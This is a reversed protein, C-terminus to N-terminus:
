RAAPEALLLAYQEDVARSYNELRERIYSRIREADGDLREFRASLDENRLNDLPMLYQALGLDTLLSDLKAHDSLAMVPKDLIMALVLNHYRPSIVVDTEEIQRLLEDVTLAPEAMLQSPEVPLKRSRLLDVFEETVRSDFQFDGILIRVNFDHEYLWSVLTAMTDLYRRYEPTDLLGIAGSYDKLGLGVVRRGDAHVSKSVLHRRYLGFVVDPYVADRDNSFGIEALYRRSAQDRYSRYDALWLSTKIFWRSLPHTIPGAGVSLFVLKVRCIKALISLKFIDYPWGLPGCMYDAVIGTGAVILMDTRRMVRLMRTWHVIELWVRRLRKLKGKLWAPQLAPVAAATQNTRPKFPSSEAAGRISSRFAPIGHRRQVDEPYTCLCQLEVDPRRQLIGEIVAQLTCENGLNGAGFHGYLSIRLPKMSKRPREVGSVKM